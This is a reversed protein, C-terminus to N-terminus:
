NTSLSHEHLIQKSPILLRDRQNENVDGKLTSQSQAFATISLLTAAMFM